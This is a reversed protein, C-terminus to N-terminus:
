NCGCSVSGGAGDAGAMAERTELVHGELRAEMTDDSAQMCPRQSTGRAWVPVTACGSSLLTLALGVRAMRAVQADLGALCGAEGAEGATFSRLRCHNRFHHVHRM